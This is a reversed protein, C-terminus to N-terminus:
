LKKIIKKYEMKMKKNFIINKYNKNIYYTYKNNNEIKGLIKYNFLLKKIIKKNISFKNNKNILIKIKKGKINFFKKYNKLIKRDKKLQLINGETLFLIQNSIKLIERKVNEELKESLEFIIIDFKKWDKEDYKIDILCSYFLGRKVKICKQKIDGTKEKLQKEVDKTKINLIQKIDGKLVDTEVLLVKKNKKIFFHALNIMIVSKGIGKNGIITYTKAKNNKSTKKEKKICYKKIHKKIVKIYIYLIKPFNKLNGQISFIKRKEKKQVLFKKSEEVKNQIFNNSKKLPAIGINSFIINVLYEEFQKAKKRSKRSKIKYIYKEKEEDIFIIKIHKNTKKIKEKVEEKSIEGPLNENIIIFNIEKYKNIIEIIAEKYQIDKELIKINKNESLKKNIIPNGLATIIKIM